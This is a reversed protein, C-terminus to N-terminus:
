GHNMLRLASEAIVAIAIAESTYACGYILFAKGITKWFSDGHLRRLMFYLYITGFLAGDFHPGFKNLASVTASLLYQAGYFHLGAILHAGYYQQKKRYLLWNIGAFSFLGLWRLAGYAVQIQHEIEHYENATSYGGMLNGISIKPEGPKKPDQTISYHVGM